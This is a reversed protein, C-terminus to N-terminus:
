LRRLHEWNETLDGLVVDDREVSLLEGFFFRMVKKRRERKKRIFSENDNSLKRKEWVLHYGTNVTRSLDNQLASGCINEFSPHYPPAQVVSPLSPDPLGSVTLATGKTKM